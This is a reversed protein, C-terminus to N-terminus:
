NRHLRARRGRHFADARGVARDDGPVRLATAPRPLGARGAPEPPHGAHGRAPLLLRLLGPQAAARVAPGRGIGPRRHRRHPGAGGGAHLGRRPPGPRGQIRRRGRVPLAQQPVREPHHLPLLPYNWPIIHGTVGLPELLTFSLKNGPVEITRGGVKDALGAWYELWLPIAGILEAAKALYHGSDLAELRALEDANETVLAALSRLLAARAIADTFQWDVAAAKAAAVARDVDAADARPIEAITHGTNPDVTPFTQGAAAATWAGGIFMQVQEVRRAHADLTLTM